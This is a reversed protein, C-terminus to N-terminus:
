PNELTTPELEREAERVAAIFARIRAPDKTGPASEVGSSVDVGWPRVTRIAEGVNEPTLGGALILPGLRAAAEARSWDPRVGRGGRGPGELLITRPGGGGEHLRTVRDLLSESDHFVPLLRVRGAEKLVDRGPEAQIVDAAFRARMSQLEPLTPYRFVAVKSVLPPVREALRQADAPDIRRESVAFVFGLADAGAEVAADIGQADTVGCIKVRVRM